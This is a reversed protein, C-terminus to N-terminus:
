RVFISDPKSLQGLIFKRADKVKAKVTKDSILSDSKYGAPWIVYRSDTKSLDHHVYIPLLSFDALRTKRYNKNKELTLSLVAGYSRPHTRQASIFNGLSYFVSFSVSDGNKEVRKQEFGQVVHPHSGVIVDIGESFLWDALKKQKENPTLAYEDGWHLSAIMFDPRLSDPMNQVEKLIKGLRLTDLTNLRWAEKKPISGNIGYAAALIGLKFGNKETFLIKPALSDSFSGTSLFGMSDLAAVTRSIGSLGGDFTHNNAHTLIDFGASKLASLYSVPTLFQPYGSYGTKKNGIVTELNGITLDAGSLVSSIKSFSSDFRYNGDGKKAANLQELHAMLDGTFILTLRENGSDPLVPALISVPMGILFPILCLFIIILNM